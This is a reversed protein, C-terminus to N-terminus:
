FWSDNELPTTYVLEAKLYKETIPSQHLHAAIEAWEPLISENLSNHNQALQISKNLQSWEATFWVSILVPIFFGASIFIV